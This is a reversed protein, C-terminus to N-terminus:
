LYFMCISLLISNRLIIDNIIKSIYILQHFYFIEKYIILLYQRFCDYIIFIFKTFISVFMYIIYCYLYDDLTGVVELMYIDLYFFPYCRHLYVHYIIFLM